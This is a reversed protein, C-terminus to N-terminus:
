SKEDPLLERELADLRQFRDGWRSVFKRQRIWVYLSWLVAGLAALLLFFDPLFPVAPPGEPNFPQERNFPPPGYHGFAFLLFRSLLLLLIISGVLNVKAQFRFRRFEKSAEELFRHLSAVPYEDKKETM